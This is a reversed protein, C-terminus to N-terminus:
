QPARVGSTWAVVHRGLSQTAATAASRRRKKSARPVGPAQAETHAPHPLVAGAAMVGAVAGAAPAPAATALSDTSVSPQLVRRKRRKHHKSLVRIPSTLADRVTPFPDVDPGLDLSGVSVRLRFRQPWVVCLWADAPDRQPPYACALSAPHQTRPRVQSQHNKSVENIRVRLTGQRSKLDLVPHQMLQLIQQSEVVKQNEYLLRVQLPLSERM